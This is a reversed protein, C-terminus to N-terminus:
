GAASQEFYRLILVVGLALLIPLMLKGPILMERTPRRALAPGAVYPRAPAAPEATHVRGNTSPAEEGTM